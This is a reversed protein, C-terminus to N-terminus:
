VGCLCHRSKTRRDVFVIVAAPCDCANTDTAKRFRLVHDVASVRACPHTQNHPRHRCRWDNRGKCTICAQVFARHRADGVWKRKVPRLRDPARASTQRHRDHPCFIRNGDIVGNWHWGSLYFRRYQQCTQICGSFGNHNLFFGGTIM